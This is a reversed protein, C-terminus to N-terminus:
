GITYFTVVTQQPQADVTTWNLTVTGPGQYTWEIPSNGTSPNQGGATWGAGLPLAIVIDENILAGYSIATQGQVLMISPLATLPAPTAPPLVPAPPAAPTLAATIPAEVLAGFLAGIVSGVLRNNPDDLGVGLLAGSVGGIVAGVIM